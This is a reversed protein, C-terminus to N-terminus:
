KQFTRFVSGMLTTRGMFRRGGRKSSYWNYGTYVNGNVLLGWKGVHPVAAYLPSADPLWATGTGFRSRPLGFIGYLLKNPPARSEAMQDAAGQVVDVIPKPLNNEVFDPLDVPVKPSLNQPLPRDKDPKGGAQEHAEEAEADREAASEVGADAGADADAQARVSQASCVGFCVFM